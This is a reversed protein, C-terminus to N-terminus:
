NAKKNRPSYFDQWGKVFTIELFKIEDKLFLFLDFEAGDGKTSAGGLVAPYHDCPKVGASPKYSTIEGAEVEIQNGWM